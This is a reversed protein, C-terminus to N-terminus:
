RVITTLHDDFEAKRVDVRLAPEFRLAAPFRPLQQPGSRIRGRSALPQLPDRL